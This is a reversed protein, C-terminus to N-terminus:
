VYYKEKLIKVLNRATEEPSGELMEAEGKLVKPTFVKRLRTPSGKLGYNDGQGDLDDPGWVPIEKEYAEMITDMPAVRPENLKKDVTVL